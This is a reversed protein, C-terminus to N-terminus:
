EAMQKRDAPSFTFFKSNPFATVLLTKHWPLLTFVAALNIVDACQWESPNIHWKKAASHKLFLHYFSALSSCFCSNSLWGIAHIVSTIRELPIVVQMTCTSHPWKSLVDSSFQYQSTATTITLHIVMNPTVNSKYPNPSCISTLHSEEDLWPTKSTLYCLCM